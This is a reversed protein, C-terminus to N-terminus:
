RIDPTSSFYRPRLWAGWIMSSDQLRPQDAFEQKCVSFILYLGTEKSDALRLGLGGGATIMCPYALQRSYYQFWDM